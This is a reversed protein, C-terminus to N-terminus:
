RFNMSLFLLRYQKQKICGYFYGLSYALMELLYYPIFKFLKLKFKNRYEITASTLPILLIMWGYFPLLMALMLLLWMYYRSLLGSAFRMTSLYSKGISILLLKSNVAAKMEAIKFKKFLFESFVTAIVTGIIIWINALWLSLGFGMFIPTHWLPLCLYKNLDQHSQSLIAESAAYQARRKLFPYIRNRHHHWIYGDPVYWGTYGANLVRWLLDVDEGVRMEHNFGGVSTFVKKRILLNCTPVYSVESNKEIPSIKNGKYLPTMYEEYYDLSTEFRKTYVGGGVFAVESNQFCRALTQLWRDSVECDSDTFAIVEGKAKSVALNRCASQGQNEKVEILKVPYKKVATITLNDTSADDVVIVELKDAPYHCNLISKLCLEIEHPRNHVAIVVSIFPAVKQYRSLSEKPIERVLVERNAMSEAFKSVKPLFKEPIALDNQLMYIVKATNHNLQYLRLPFKKILQHDNILGVDESLRYSWLLENTM